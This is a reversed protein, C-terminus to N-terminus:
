SYTKRYENPTVGYKKAFLQTFYSINEYGVAVAVDKVKNAPNKLLECAIRLREETVYELITMGTEEKFKKRLYNVSLNVGEAMEEVTCQEMYHGAVFRRVYYSTRSEMATKCFDCCEKVYNKLNSKMESFNGTHLINPLGAHDDMDGNKELSNHLYLFLSFASQCCDEQEMEALPIMCNELLRDAKEADGMLIAEVLTQREEVYDRKTRSTKRYMHETDKMVTGKPKYFLDEKCAYIRHVKGSLENLAVKQECYVLQIDEEGLLGKLRLIMNTVAIQVPFVIIWFPDMWLLHFIEKIERLYKEKEEDLGYIGILYFCIESAKKHFYMEAAAEVDQVEGRCAQDIMREVAMKQMKEQQRERDLTKVLKKALSEVEEVQFPKLLFDEAHLSIAEKAYDFRDFGTLFVIKCAFGEERVIRALEIGNMGPMQIDTIMIDIDESNLCELASRAGRATFVQGIGCSKWDVYNNLTDLEVKEDEVLLIKYM